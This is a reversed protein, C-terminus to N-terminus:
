FNFDPCGVVNINWNQDEPWSTIAPWVECEKRRMVLEMVSKM